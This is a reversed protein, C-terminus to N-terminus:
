CWEVVHSGSVLVLLDTCKVDGESIAVWSRALVVQVGDAGVM